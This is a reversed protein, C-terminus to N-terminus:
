EPLGDENFSDENIVSNSKFTKRNKLICGVIVLIIVVVSPIVVALVITLVKKSSDDNSTNVNQDTSNPDYIVVKDVSILHAGGLSNSISLSDKVQIFISSTSENYPVAILVDIITSGKKITRLLLLDTRNAYNSGM